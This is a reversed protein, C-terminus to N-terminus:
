NSNSDYQRKIIPALPPRKIGAPCRRSFNGNLYLIENVDTSKM